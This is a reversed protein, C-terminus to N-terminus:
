FDFPNNRHKEYWEMFVERNDPKMADPNYFKVDPLNYFVKNHNEKRNFLHPFYGKSLETLNFAEPLDVLAMPLFNLSDLFRM